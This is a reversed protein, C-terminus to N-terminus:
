KKSHDPKTDHQQQKKCWHFFRLREVESGDGRFGNYM